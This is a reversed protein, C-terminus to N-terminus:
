LLSGGGHLQSSLQVQGGMSAAYILMDTNHEPEYPLLCHQGLKLDANFANVNAVVADHWRGTFGFLM